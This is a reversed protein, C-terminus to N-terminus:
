NDTSGDDIVIVECNPYTQSLVSDIARPLFAAYNYTPIIVSILPFNDTLKM